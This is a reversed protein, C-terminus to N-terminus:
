FYWRMLLWATRIVSDQSFGVKPRNLASVLNDIKIEYWKHAEEYDMLEAHYQEETIENAMYSEYLPVRRFQEMNLEALVSKMQVSKEARVVEIAKRGAGQQIAATLKEEELHELELADM